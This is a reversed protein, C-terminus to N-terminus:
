SGRKGSGAEQVSGTSRQPHKFGRLGRKPNPNPNTNGRGKGRGRSDARRNSVGAGRKNKWKSGRKKGKKPGYVLSLTPYIKKEKIMDHHKKCFFRWGEWVSVKKGKENLVPKGLEDRLITRIRISYVERKEVSLNRNCSHYSCKTM